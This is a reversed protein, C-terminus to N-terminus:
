TIKHQKNHKKDQTRSWLAERPVWRASAIRAREPRSNRSYILYAELYPDFIILYKLCKSAPHQTQATQQANLLQTSGAGPEQIPAQEPTLLFLSSSGSSVLGEVGAQMESGRPWAACPDGASQFTGALNPAAEPVGFEVCLM